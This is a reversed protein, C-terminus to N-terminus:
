KGNGSGFLNLKQYWKTKRETIFIDILLILLAPIVFLEYQEDYDKYIKEEIMKKGMRRIQELITELGADSTSARVCSGGGAAAIQQTLNLDLKTVVTHGDKDKMFGSQQGNTYIPIPAGDASGMAITHITIGKEAAAKAASLADDEFNEGDTILIISKSRAESNNQQLFLDASMNLATGISTGQVPVMNTNITQLFMKAAGYDTTLPLQVFPEGAFVVIGIRDGQLEGILKEIDEKARELRSPSIDQANMSNSVDLCIVIDSGKREVSELHSGIEPDIMAIALLLVAVLSLIFKLNKKSLSSEPALRNYLSTEAFGKIAKKRISLALWYVLIAIPVIALAYYFIKHAVQFM